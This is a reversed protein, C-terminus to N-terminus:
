GKVAGSLGKIFQRQFLLFVILIPITAVMVGAAVTRLNGTFAGELFALGVPLTFLPENSQLMLLPWLFSNWSGVFTFIALTALAPRILPLLIRWWIGFESAGDIRAAEILEDPISQYTQRLLFIGFANAGFPIILGQLTQTFGFVNVAFIYNPILILQEPFILTGIIVYFLTTRGKFHMKALPYAALSSTTLQLLVVCTAVFISNMFYRPVNVDTFVRYYNATTAPFLYPEIPLGELNPEIQLEYNRWWGAPSEDTAEWPLVTYEGERDGQRQGEGWGILGPYPLLEPANGPRFINASNPRISMLATWIFPLTTILAVTLLIVYWGTNQFWHQMRLSLPKQGRKVTM